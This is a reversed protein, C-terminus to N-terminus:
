LFRFDDWTNYMVIAGVISSNAESHEKLANIKIKYKKLKAVIKSIM